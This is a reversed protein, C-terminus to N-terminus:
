LILRGSALADTMVWRWDLHGYKTTAFLKMTSNGALPRRGPRLFGGFKMGTAGLVHM